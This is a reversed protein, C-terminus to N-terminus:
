SSAAWTSIADPKSKVSSRAQRHKQPVLRTTASRLAAQKSGRALLVQRGVSMFAAAWGTVAMRLPRTPLLGGSFSQEGEAFGFATALTTRDNLGFELGSAIQWSGENTRGDKSVGALSSRTYGAAMFDSVNEPLKVASSTSGQYNQTLSVQSASTATLGSGERFIDGNGLLRLTGGHAQATGLVSLRDSVLTRMRSTQKEDLTTARGAVSASLGEFTQNLQGAEKVDIIAYVKSLYNFSVARLRDLGSGFALSYPNAIKNATLFDGFQLARM